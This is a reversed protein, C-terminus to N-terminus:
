FSGLLNRTAKLIWVPVKTVDAECEAYKECMTIVEKTTLAEPGSLTLTQGITADHRVAAMVM